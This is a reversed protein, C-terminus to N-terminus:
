SPRRPTKMPSIAPSSASSSLALCARRPELALELGARPLKLLQRASSAARSAADSRELALDIRERSRERLAISCSSFESRACCFSCADDGIEGLGPQGCRARSRRSPSARSAHPFEESRCVRSPAGAARARHAAISASQARLESASWFARLSSCLRPQPSLLRLELFGRAGGHRLYASSSFARAVLLCLTLSRLPSSVPARRLEFLAGARQSRRQILASCREGRLDRLAFGRQPRLQLARSVRITPAARAVRSLAAPASRRARHATAAAARALM